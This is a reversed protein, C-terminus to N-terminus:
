STRMSAGGLRTGARILLTGVHHGLPRRGSDGQPANRHLGAGRPDAATGAMAAGVQDAVAGEDAGVGVEGHWGAPAPGSSMLDRRHEEVMRGDMWSHLM